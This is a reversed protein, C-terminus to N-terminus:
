YVQIFPAAVIICCFEMKAAINEPLYPAGNTYPQERLMACEANKLDM